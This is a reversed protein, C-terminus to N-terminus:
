NNNNLRKIRYKHSIFYDRKESHSLVYIKEKLPEQHIGDELIEVMGWNHLLTAIANQRSVDTKSIEEKYGDQALLFKFHTIYYHGRKHLIYCSPTIVKTRRNCIGIRELTEKIILFDKLLKVKVGKIENTSKSM